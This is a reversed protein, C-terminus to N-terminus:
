TRSGRMRPDMIDRLADGVLNWGLVFFVLAVGPFVVIYWYTALSPIWNRAFSILQGWDAYGVETGIGLFSLAAFGIVDAGINMSALIITPYIVNPIIHRMIIRRDKVGIVRAAMIFDRERLSLIDGRVIRAYTMWSFTVLAILPPWIGKGLVPTLIASLTLAALLSPFALFIDTIRMLVEDVWGGYFAALSGVLIGILLSISEIILGVKLATRTGWIVGYYLDWQGGSTGFLHVWGDQGTIGWWFPLDPPRSKWVAGPPRPQPSFGDRPTLYPDRTNTPPALVPALLAVVVFFTILSIGIISLPNTITGRFIRYFEPGILKELRGIQREPLDDLYTARRGPTPESTSVAM